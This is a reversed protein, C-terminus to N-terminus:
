VMSQASGSSGVQLDFDTQVLIKPGKGHLLSGVKIWREVTRTETLLNGFALHKTYM